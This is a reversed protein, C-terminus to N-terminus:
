CYMTGMDGKLENDHVDFHMCRVKQSYNIVPMLFVEPLSVYQHLETVLKLM